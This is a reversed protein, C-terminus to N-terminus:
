GQPQQIRLGPPAAGAAQPSVSLGASEAQAATEEAEVEEDTKVIARIDDEALGAERYVLRMLEGRDTEPLPLALNMIRLARQFREERTLNERPTLAIDIDAEIAIDENNWTWEFEQGAEDTYRGMRDKDYFVQMLQLMTRAIDLYWQELNGRREAQRREGSSTVLQSETATTRKEPFVGRLVENMGTAERIEALVKDPVAFAEQPLPPPILPAISRADAGEELGIYEGWETSMLAKRGPDTMARAPGIIKPITRAIHTSLNTRYEKLEDLAPMIVRMDGLGEFQNPDDRLQIPKFPSRDELDLNFMLPNIRQYLVLDTRGKPFTTVLGTELDWMEVVTVRDDDDKTEADLQEMFLSDKELGTKVVSDGKLEDLLKRGETEGYREFVFAKWTPHNKVEPLPLKTYQAYWRTDEVQKASPDYRIMDYPVYDVTVRDRLVVDVQELNRGAEKLQRDAEEASIGTGVLEELQAQYADRPVERLEVDSVYDYYVKVWGQDVLHADKIAKKARRQGKTDKWGSNLAHTAALAQERTGRGINRAIFEVDVAVASSYMTDIVSVGTAVNNVHGRSTVETTDISGEYEAVMRNLEPKRDDFKKDALSLRRKYVALMTEEDKYVRFVDNRAM